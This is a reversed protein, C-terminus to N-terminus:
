AEILHTLRMQLAPGQVACILDLQRLTARLRKRATGFVLLAFGTLSKRKRQVEPHAQRDTPKLRLLLHRRPRQAPLHHALLRLRLRPLRQPLRQPLWQLLPHLLLRVLHQLIQLQQPLM